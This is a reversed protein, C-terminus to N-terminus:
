VPAENVRAAAPTRATELTPTELMFQDARKNIIACRQMKTVEIVPVGFDETVKGRIEYFGRGRFPFRQAIDPFHVTDFVRGDCDLFTGFHMTQRNKTAADK